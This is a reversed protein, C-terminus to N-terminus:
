EYTDNQIMEEVVPSCIKRNNADGAITRDIKEMDRLMENHDAQENDSIATAEKKTGHVNDIQNSVHM